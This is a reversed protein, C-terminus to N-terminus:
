TTLWDTVHLNICAQADQAMIMTEQVQKHIKDDAEAVVPDQADAKKWKEWLLEM